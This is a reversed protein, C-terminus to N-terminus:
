AHSVEAPTWIVLEFCIRGTDISFYDHSGGAHESYGWGWSKPWFFLEWGWGGAILYAGRFMSGCRTEKKFGLRVDLLRGIWSRPM